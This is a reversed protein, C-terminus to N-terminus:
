YMLWYNMSTNPGNEVEFSVTLDNALLVSNGDANSLDVCVVATSDESISILTSTFVVEGGLACLVMFASSLAVNVTHIYERNDDTITITTIFPSMIQATGAEILTVTFEESGEIIADVMLTIQACGTRGSSQASFTVIAGGGPEIFDVGAATNLFPLEVDHALASISFESATVDSTQLETVLDTEFQGSLNVAVCVNVSIGNETASLTENLMTVIGDLSCFLLNNYLM